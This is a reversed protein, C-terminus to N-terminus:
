LRSLIDKKKSEYEDETILNGDRLKKLEVLANSASSAPPTSGVATTSSVSTSLYSEMGDMPLAVGRAAARSEEMNRLRRFEYAVEELQQAYAYAHRTPIKPLCDLSTIGGSVDQFGLVAGTVGEVLHADVLDRWFVDHFSKRFVGQNLFVARRNTLVLAGPIVKLAWVGQVLLHEVQEGQAMLPKVEEFVRRVQSQSQETALFYELAKPESSPAQFIRM